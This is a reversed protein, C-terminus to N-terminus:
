LLMLPAGRKLELQCLPFGSPDLTHIFETPIYNYGGETISDAHTYILKKGTALALVTSNIENVEVNKAALIFHDLFYDNPLPHDHTPDLLERYLADILSQITCTSLFPSKIKLM